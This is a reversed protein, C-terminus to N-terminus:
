RSRSMMAPAKGHEFRMKRSTLEVSPYWGTLAAFVMGGSSRESGDAKPTVAAALEELVSLNHLQGRKYHHDDL